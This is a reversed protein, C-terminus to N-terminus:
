TAPYCITFLIEGTDAFQTDTIATAAGAPTTQTLSLSTSNPNIRLCLQGTTTINSYLGISGSGFVNATNSSTPLGGITVAGTGTGNSTLKVYGHAIITNGIRTYRGVQVDYTM